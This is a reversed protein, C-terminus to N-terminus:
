TKTPRGGGEVLQSGAVPALHDVEAAHLLAPVFCRHADAEGVDRFQPQLLVSPPLTGEVGSSLAPCIMATSQGMPICLPLNVPLNRRLGTTLM